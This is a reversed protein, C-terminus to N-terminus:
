FSKPLSFIKFFNPACCRRDVPTSLRDQLGQAIGQACRLVRASPRGFSGRESGRGLIEHPEKGGLAGAQSLVIKWRGFSHGYGRGHRPRRLPPPVMAVCRIRMPSVCVVSVGGGGGRSLSVLIGFCSRPSLVSQQESVTMFNHLAFDSMIGLPTSVVGATARAPANSECLPCPHMLLSPVESAAGSATVCATPPPQGLPQPRNSDTVLAM